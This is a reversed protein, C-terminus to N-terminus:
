IVLKSSICVPVSLFILLVALFFSNFGFFLLKKKKRAMEKVPSRFAQLHFYKVAAKIFTLLSSARGPDEALNCCGETEKM